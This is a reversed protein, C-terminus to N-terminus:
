IRKTSVNKRITDPSSPCSGLFFGSGLVEIHRTRGYWINNMQTHWRHSWAYLHSSNSNLLTSFTHITCSTRKCTTMVEQCQLYKCKGWLLYTKLFEKKKKKKGSHSKTVPSFSPLPPLAIQGVHPIDVVESQCKLKLLM